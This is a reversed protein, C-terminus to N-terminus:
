EDRSDEARDERVDKKGHESHGAGDKDDRERAFGLSVHEVRAMVRM